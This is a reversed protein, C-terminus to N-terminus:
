PLVLGITNSVAAGESPMTALVASAAGAAFDPPLSVAIRDREIQLIRATATPSGSAFLASVETDALLGDSLIASTGEMVQGSVPFRVFRTGQYVVLSVRYGTQVANPFDFAADFTAVRAGDAEAVSAETLVLTPTTFGARAPRGPVLALLGALMAGAVIRSPLEMAEFSSVFLTGALIGSPPSKRLEM